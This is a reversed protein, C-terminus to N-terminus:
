ALVDLKWSELLHGSVLIPATTKEIGMEPIAKEEESTVTRVIVRCVFDILVGNKDISWL